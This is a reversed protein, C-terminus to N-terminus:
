NSVPNLVFINPSFQLFVISLTVQYQQNPIASITPNQPAIGLKQCLQNAGKAADLEDEFSGGSKANQGKMYIQVRWQKTQQHWYIGKYQSTKEKKECTFM